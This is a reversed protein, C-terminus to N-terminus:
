FALEIAFYFNKSNTKNKMHKLDVKSIKENDALTALFEALSNSNQLVGKILAKHNKNIEVSELWCDDPISKSLINLLINVSVTQKECINKIEKNRKIFKLKKTIETESQNMQMQLTHCDRHLANNTLWKNISIYSLTCFTITLLTISILFWIKLSQVQNIFVSSIFNIAKM